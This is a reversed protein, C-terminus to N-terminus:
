KSISTLGGDEKKLKALYQIGRPTLKRGTRDRIIFRKKLLIPEVSGSVVDASLGLSGAIAEVGRGSGNADCLSELYNRHTRSLGFQDIGDLTFAQLILPQTLETSGVAFCMDAVKRSLKIANRPNGHSRSAIMKVAEIDFKLEKDRFENAIIWMLSTENYDQLEWVYSFRGVFSNEDLLHRQTTAAMLTFSPLNFYGELTPVRFEAMPVYLTEQLNMRMQHCEDIFLMFSQRNQAIEIIANTLDVPKKFSSGHFENFDVGVEFAIARALTTKGLGGPGSLLSHPFPRNQKNSSIIAVKIQQRIEDLGYLEDLRKIKL